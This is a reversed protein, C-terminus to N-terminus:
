GQRTGCRRCFRANASLSLGCSRCPAIAAGTAAPKALVEQNSAAWIEEAGRVVTRSGIRGVAPQATRSPVYPAPSSPWQPAGNPQAGPWQPDATAQPYQPQGDPAPTVPWPTPADSINASSFTALSRPRDSSIRFM